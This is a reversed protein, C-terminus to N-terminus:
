RGNQVEAITNNLSEADEVHLTKISKDIRRMFGCLTTGVGVEIFLDAGAALMNRITTEWQVPSMTQRRILDPLEALGAQEGTVNAYLPIQPAALEMASLTQGIKEAASEMLPTHFAGSVKLPVARLGKDAAAALFAELAAQEGAVVTQGPCNYNVPLILGAAKADDVCAMVKDLKGIAAVMGDGPRAAEGMWRGRKAILDMGADFDFVGAATLAAYEGLSFGATMAVADAGITEILAAYGAMSVAYICPQTVETRALEEETGQFCARRVEEPARDLVAKAAPCNEYLSLGMGPKQAGQGSFLVAIKM